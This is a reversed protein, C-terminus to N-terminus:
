LTPVKSKEPLVTTSLSASCAARGASPLRSSCGPCRACLAEVLRALPVAGAPVEFEGTEGVVLEPVLRIRGGVRGHRIRQLAPAAGSGARRARRDDVDRHPEDFPLLVEDVADREDAVGRRVVVDDAALHPEELVAHEVGFRELYLM